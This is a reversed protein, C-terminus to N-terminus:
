AHASSRRRAGSPRCARAVGPSPHHPPPAPRPPLPLAHLPPTNPVEGHIAAHPRRVEPALMGRSEEDGEPSVLLVEVPWKAVNRFWLNKPGLPWIPESDLVAAGPCMSNGFGNCASPPCSAGLTISLLSIAMAVLATGAEGGGGRCPLFNLPRLQVTIPLVTTLLYLVTTPLNPM